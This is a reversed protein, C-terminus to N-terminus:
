GSFDKHAPGLEHYIIRSVQTEESLNADVGKEYVRSGASAYVKVVNEPMLESLSDGISDCVEKHKKDDIDRLIITIIRM